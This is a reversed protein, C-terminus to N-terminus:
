LDRKDTAYDYFYITLYSQRVTALNSKEKDEWGYDLSKIDDATTKIGHKTLVEALDSKFQELQEQKM